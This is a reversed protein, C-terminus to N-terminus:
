RSDRGQIGVKFGGDAGACRHLVGRWISSPDLNSPAPRTLRRDGDEGGSARGVVTHHDGDAMCPQGLRGGRCAAHGGPARPGLIPRLPAPNSANKCCGGLASIALKDTMFLTALERKGCGGVKAGYVYGDRARLVFTTPRRTTSSMSWGWSARSHWLGVGLFLLNSPVEAAPQETRSTFWRM